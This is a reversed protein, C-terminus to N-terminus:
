VPFAKDRFSSRDGGRYWLYLGTPNGPLSKWQVNSSITHLPWLLCYFAYLLLVDKLIPWSSELSRHPRKNDNNNQLHHGSSQPM